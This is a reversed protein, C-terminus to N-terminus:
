WRVTFLLRLIAGNPPGHADNVAADTPLSKAKVVNGGIIQKALNRPDVVIRAGVIALPTETARLPGGLLTVTVALTMVRAASM